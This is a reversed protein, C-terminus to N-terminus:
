DEHDGAHELSAWFQAGPIENPLTGGAHLTATTVLTDRSLRVPEAVFPLRRASAPWALEVVVSDGANCNVPEPLEIKHVGPQMDSANLRVRVEPGNRTVEQATINM